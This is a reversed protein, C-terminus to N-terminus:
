LAANKIALHNKKYEEICNILSQQYVFHTSLVRTM